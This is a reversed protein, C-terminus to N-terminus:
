GSRPRPWGPASSQLGRRTTTLSMRTFPVRSGHSAQIVPQSSCTHSRARATSSSDRWRGRPDARHARWSARRGGAEAACRTRMLWSTTSARTTATPPPRSSLAWRSGARRRVYRSGRSRSPALHGDSESRMRRQRIAAARERWRATPDDDTGFVTIEEPAIRGYRLTTYAALAAVGSGVIACRMTCDVLRRM